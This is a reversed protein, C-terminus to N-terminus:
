TRDPDSGMPRKEVTLSRIRVNRFRITGTGGVQLAVAGPGILKDDRADVTVRGNVRAVLHSGDVHLEFRNWRGATQLPPASAVEVISGTPYTEHADAINLEYCTRQGLAPTDGSPCRVLIGGNVGADAWWEGTVEVNAYTATTRLYSSGGKAAAVIEGNEENWTAAGTPWWGRMPRSFGAGVLSNGSGVGSNGAGVRSNRAAVPSTTTPAPKLRGSAETTEPRDPLAFAVLM